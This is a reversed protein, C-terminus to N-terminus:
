AVKLLKGTDSEHAPEPFDISIRTGQGVTSKIDMKAGLQECYKQVVALGLGAGEHSRGLGMEAQEFPRMFSNIKLADMGLGTDRIELHFGQHGKRPQLHISIEGHPTFKMANDFLNRIISRYIIKNSVQDRKLEPHKYVNVNLFLGKAKLERNRDNM